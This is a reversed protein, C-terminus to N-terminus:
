FFYVQMEWVTNETEGLNVRVDTNIKTVMRSKSTDPSSAPNVGAEEAAEVAVVTISTTTLIPTTAMTSTNIQAISSVALLSSLLRTLLLTATTSFTAAQSATGKPTAVLSTRAAATTLPSTGAENTTGEEHAEVGAVHTSTLTGTARRMSTDRAAGAGEERLHSIEKSLLGTHTQSVMIAEAEEEAVIHEEAERAEERALRNVRTDRRIRTARRITERKLTGLSTLRSGRAKRATCHHLGVRLKFSQTAQATLLSSTM